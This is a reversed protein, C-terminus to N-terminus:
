ESWASLDRGLFAALDRNPKAFLTLLHERTKQRMPAHDNQRAIARYIATRSFAQFGGERWRWPISKALFPIGPLSRLRVTTQTRVYQEDAANIMVPQVPSDPEGVRLFAWIRAQAEEPRVRFDELLLFLFASRDFYLLYRKIQELYQSANILRSESELAEEFSVRLGLRVKDYQYHSYAREVPHRMIYILRVEPIAEAIRGAVDGCEPWCSYSTSAEGCVQREDAESFLGRYWQEGRSRASNHSFFFPEKPDCMFIRRHQALTAHLMTTGSRAAGIILFDPYRGKASRV